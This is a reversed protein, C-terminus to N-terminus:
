NAVKAHENWMTAAIKVGSASTVFYLLLDKAVSLIVARPSAFRM